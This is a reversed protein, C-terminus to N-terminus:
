LKLKVEVKYDNAGILKSLPVINVSDIKVGTVLTFGALEKRIEYELEEKIKHVQSVEM